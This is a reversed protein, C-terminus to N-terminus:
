VKIPKHLFSKNVAFVSLKYKGLTNANDFDFAIISKHINIGIQQFFLDM